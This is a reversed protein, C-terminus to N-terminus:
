DAPVPAPPLAGEEQMVNDKVAIGGKIMNRIEERRRNLRALFEAESVKGDKDTDMDLYAKDMIERRRQEIKDNYAKYEEPSVIGDGNTDIEAFKKRLMNQYSQESEDVVPVPAELEQINTEKATASLSCFMATCLVATFAKKM